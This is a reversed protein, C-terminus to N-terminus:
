LSFTSRLFQVISWSLKYAGFLCCTIGILVALLISGGVIGLVVRFFAVVIYKSLELADKGFDFIAQSIRDLCIAMARFWTGKIDPQTALADGMDGVVEAEEEFQQRFDPNSTPM